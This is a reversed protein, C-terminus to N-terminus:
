DDDDDRDGPDPEGPRLIDVSGFAGTADVVV